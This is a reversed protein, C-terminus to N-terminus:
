KLTATFESKDLIPLTQFHQINLMKLKIRERLPIDEACVIIKIEDLLGMNAVRELLEAIERGKFELGCLMARPTEDSLSKVIAVPTNVAELAFGDEELFSLHGMLDNGVVLLKPGSEQRSSAATPQAEASHAAAEPKEPPSPSPPKEPKASEAPTSFRATEMEERRKFSRKVYKFELLRPEIFRDILTQQANSLKHFSFAFVWKGSRELRRFIGQTEVVPCGPIRNIKVFALKAGPKFLSKAVPTEKETSLNMAREVTVTMGDSSIDKGMGFIGHGSGIGEMITVKVQERPTFATRPSARRENHRISKPFLLHPKDQDFVLKTHFSWWTKDLSFGAMADEGHKMGEFDAMQVRLAKSKKDIFLIETTASGKKFNVQLSVRSRFVEDLYGM